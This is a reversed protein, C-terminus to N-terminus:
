EALLSDTPAYDDTLVPVDDFRVPRTWRDAIAKDLPPATPTAKRIEQWRQRLFATTPAAGETAVLIVNRTYTPNRDNVGDFVPYLLVTPFASRYTKTLSRLLKSEDGTVAGIINVVVVGGPSLRERVLELFEHTALHFPISDAYFADIVIVDWKQQHRTLWQRGDEADVTLRPSRPLKFWRYAANVVEPDLEAVQLRLNPFDRWIRKPASGGGLGIFLVNKASPRHAIGLDLYDTYRFRTRYPDSLWMGSQFSNDFRLYRSDDDDAVVLRHYQTDRAERISFNSGLEGIAAPDLPGPTRNERQRYLPSWNQAAVGKLQQNGEPALSLALVVAGALAGSLAVAAPVLRVALAVILAAAVLTAAGVALVQDTGLEPVLWFATVFTGFISGATSISFLRGATRGLRELSSAALRVATPSASALVISAPGFLIAAALLPDLRPGPDWNVIWTLVTQDIVPVLAVLVAGLTLLSILLYPSPLRDAVVGGAWYGIALGTLVIGILSGWVFLSSGFTPALVRSATIELGLLAAGSLFVAVAIALGTRRERSM